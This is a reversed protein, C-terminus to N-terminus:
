RAMITVTLRFVRFADRNVHDLDVGRDYGPREYTGGCGGEPVCRDREPPLLVCEPPGPPSTQLSGGGGLYLFILSVSLNFCECTHTTIVVSM